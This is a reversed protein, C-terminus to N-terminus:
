TEAAVSNNQHLTYRARTTLITLHDTKCLLRDLENGEDPSLSGERRCFLLEDLRVQAAPALLGDALAELEERSLGLLLESDSM